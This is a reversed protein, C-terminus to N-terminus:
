LTISEVSRVVVVIGGSECRRLTDSMQQQSDIQSADLVCVCAHGGGAEGRTQTGMVEEMAGEVNHIVSTTMADDDKEDGAYLFVAPKMVDPLPEDEGGCISSVSAKPSAVGIGVAVAYASMACGVGSTAGADRDVRRSRAAPSARNSSSSTYSYHASYQILVLLHVVAAILVMIFLCGPSWLRGKSNGHHVGFENKKKLKENDHERGDLHSQSSSSAKPKSTDFDDGRAHVGVETRTTTDATAAKEKEGQRAGQKRTQSRTRVGRPQEEEM